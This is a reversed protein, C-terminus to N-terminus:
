YIERLVERHDIMYLLKAKERLDQELRRIKFRDIGYMRIYIRRFGKPVREYSTLVCAMRGGYQRIIETVEKISGPIDKVIMAFQIGRKKLGTLSILAKFIDSKTIVGEIMGEDDVVPVGSINNELLTESAEEISFNKPVTILDKSMFTNVQIQDRYKQIDYSKMTSAIASEARKLDLDTVVGMLEAGKMVPLMHIDHEGMLALAKTMVDDSQITIVDKSMWYKVLM